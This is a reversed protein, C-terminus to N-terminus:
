APRHDLHAHLAPLTSPAMEFSSQGVERLVGGDAPDHDVIAVHCLGDFGFCPQPLALTQAALQQQRQEAGFLLLAGPQGAVQVVVCQLHHDGRLVAHLHDTLVQCALPV